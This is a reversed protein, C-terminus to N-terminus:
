PKRPDVQLNALYAAVLEHSGLAQMMQDIRQFMYTQPPNATLGLHHSFWCEFPSESSLDWRQDSSLAASYRKKLHRLMMAALLAATRDDRVRLQDGVCDVAEVLMRIAKALQGDDPRVMGQEVGGGLQPVENVRYRSPMRFRLLGIRRLDCNFADLAVWYKLVDRLRELKPVDLFDDLSVRLIPASLSFTTADRWEATKGDDLATPTLKLSAPPPWMGALFRANTHYVALSMGDKDVCALFLPTPYDFLWRIEDATKFIWPDDGSKVQVSYYDTVVGRRGVTENLTCQLDIGYDDSRRVPTVTGWGSFLYDALIESRSGTHFNHAVSGPM